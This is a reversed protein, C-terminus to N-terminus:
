VPAKTLDNKVICKYFLVGCICMYEVSQIDSSLRETPIIITIENNGKILLLELSAYNQHCLIPVMVNTNFEFFM